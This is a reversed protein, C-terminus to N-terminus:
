HLLELVIYFSIQGAEKNYPWTVPRREAQWEASDKNMIANRLIKLCLLMPDGHKIILDFYNKASVKAQWPLM